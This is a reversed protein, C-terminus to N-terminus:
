DLFELEEAYARIGLERRLSFSDRKRGSRERRKFLGADDWGLHEYEHASTQRAGSPAGIMDVRQWFLNDVAANIDRRLRALDDLEKSLTKRMSPVCMAKTVGFSDQVLKNYEQGKANRISNLLTTVSAQSSAFYWELFAIEPCQSSTEYGIKPRYSEFNFPAIIRRWHVLLYRSFPSKNIAAIATNFPVILRLPFIFNDILESIQNFDEYLKQTAVSFIAGDAHVKPSTPNTTTQYTPEEIPWIPSIYPEGIRVCKRTSGILIARLKQLTTFNCLSIHATINPSTASLYPSSLSSNSCHGLFETWFQRNQPCNAVDWPPKQQTSQPRTSSLSLATEGTLAVSEDHNSGSNSDQPTRGGLWLIPVTAPCSFSGVRQRIRGGITNVIRGTGQTIGEKLAIDAVPLEASHVTKRTPAPSSSM